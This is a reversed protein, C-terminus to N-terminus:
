QNLAVQRATRYGSLLAHETTPGAWYDGCTYIKAKEPLKANLANRLPHVWGPYIIPMAYRWRHLRSFVLNQHSEEYYDSVMKVVDAQIEEDTRNWNALSYAHTPMAVALGCGAPARESGKLHDWGIAALSSKLASPVAFGYAQKEPASKYGIGTTLNATYKTQELFNTQEQGLELVPNELMSLAIPAPTAIIVKDFFREVQGFNSQITVRVQNDTTSQVSLVPSNIHVPVRAGLKQTVIGMGSNPSYISWTKKADLLSLLASYWPTEKEAWFFLTSTPVGLVWDVLDDTTQNRWWSLDHGNDLDGLREYSHFDLHKRHKMALGMVKFIALKSRFSLKPHRLLSAPSGSAFRFIQHLDTAMAQIPHVYSVDQAIGLEKMLSKMNSYSDVMFQAGIDWTYGHERFTRMRGGVFQTQEFVDVTHGMKQLSYAAGLGSIGAGIIAVTSM